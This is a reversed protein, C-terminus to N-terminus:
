VGLKTSKDFDLPTAGSPIDTNAKIFKVGQEIPINYPLLGYDITDADKRCVVLGGRGTNAALKVADREYCAQGCIDCFIYHGRNGAFYKSSM